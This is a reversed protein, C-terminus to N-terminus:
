GGYRPTSRVFAQTAEGLEALRATRVREPRHQALRATESVVVAGIRDLDAAAVDAVFLIEPPADEVQYGVVWVGELSVSEAYAAAAVAVASELFEANARPDLVGLHSQYGPPFVLRLELLERRLDPDIYLVAATEPDVVVDFADSSDLVDILPAQTLQGGPPLADRAADPDTWVPLAPRGNRGAVTWPVNSAPNRHVLVWRNALRARSRFPLVSAQEPAAGLLVPVDDPDIVSEGEVGENILLSAGPPLSRLVTWLSLLEAAEIPPRAADADPSAFMAAVVSSGNRNEVARSVWLPQELLESRQAPPLNAVAISM